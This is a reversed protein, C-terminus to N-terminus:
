YSKAFIAKIAIKKGTYFCTGENEGSNLCRITVNLDKKIQEEDEASGAWFTEVFGTNSQFYSYFDDKSELFVTKEERFKLARQYLNTQIEELVGTVSSIFEDRSLSEKEKVGKDRRGVFVSGSEMDRPGVEVRLPIGKKIWSWSKEGANVNERKDIVVKVAEGDFTQKELNEKLEQCYKYIAEKDVNKRLIPLIVIHKPAIKPPLILGDDDSHTMILGGILRTSVGWSTTWAYKIEGDSDTFKIESAKAFNQGLFHSTGAQLAKGDQMMAEICYTEVAGPFRENASKKGTLVPM